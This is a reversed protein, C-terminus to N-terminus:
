KESIRKRERLRGIGYAAAGAAACMVVAGAFGPLLRSATVPWQHIRFVLIGATGGSVARVPIALGKRSISM